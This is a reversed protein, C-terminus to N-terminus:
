EGLINLEFNGELETNNITIYSFSINFLGYIDPDYVQKYSTVQLVGETEAITKKFENQVQSPLSSPEWVIEHYKIGKENDLFWEGYFQRLRVQIKQAIEDDDSILHFKGNSIDFDMQENLKFSIM